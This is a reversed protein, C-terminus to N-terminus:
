SFIPEARSNSINEIRILYQCNYNLASEVDVGPRVEFVTSGLLMVRGRLWGGSGWVAAGFVSSLSSELGECCDFM